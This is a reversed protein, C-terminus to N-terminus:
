LQCPLRQAPCSTFEHCQCSIELLRYDFADM